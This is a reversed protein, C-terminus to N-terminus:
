SHFSVAYISIPVPTEDVLNSEPFDDVQDRRSAIEIEPFVQKVQVSVDMKTVKPANSSRSHYRSCGSISSIVLFFVLIFVRLM